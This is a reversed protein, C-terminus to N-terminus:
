SMITERALTVPKAARRGALRLAALMSLIAVQSVTAPKAILPQPEVPLLGIEDLCDEEVDETCVAALETM